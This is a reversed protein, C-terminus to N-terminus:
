SFVKCMCFYFIRELLNCVELPQFQASYPIPLFCYKEPSLITLVSDLPTPLSSLGSVAFGQLTSSVGISNNNQLFLDIGNEDNKESRPTPPASDFCTNVDYVENWCNSGVNALKSKSAVILSDLHALRLHNRLQRYSTNFPGPLYLCIFILKM